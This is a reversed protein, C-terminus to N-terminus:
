RKPAEIQCKQSCYDPRTDECFYYNGARINSLERKYFALKEREMDEATKIKIKKGTFAASFVEDLNGFMNMINGLMEFGSFAVKWRLNQVRSSYYKDYSFGRGCYKCNKYGSGCSQGVRSKPDTDMKGDLINQLLAADSAGLKKMLQFKPDAEKKQKELQAKRIEEEIAQQRAYEAKREQEVSDKQHKLLEFREKTNKVISIYKSDPHQSLFRSYKDLAEGSNYAYIFDAEEDISKFQDVYIDLISAGKTNPYKIEDIKYKLRRMENSIDQFSTEYERRNQLQNDTIRKIFDNNKSLFRECELKIENINLLKINFKAKEVLFTAYRFENIFNQYASTENVKEAYKYSLLAHYKKAEQIEKAEPNNRIFEGFSEKTNKELAAKYRISNRLEIASDYYISKQYKDEASSTSLSYVSKSYLKLFITLSDDTNKHFYYLSKDLEKMQSPLDRYCIGLNKCDKEADEFTLLNYYSYYYKMSNELNNKAYDLNYKSFRLDNTSKFYLYNLYYYRTDLKYKMQFDNLKEYAKPLDGEKIHDAINSLRNSEVANDISKKANSMLDGTADAFKKFIQGQSTNMVFLVYLCSFLKKM